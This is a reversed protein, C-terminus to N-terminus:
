KAPYRIMRGSSISRAIPCQVETLDAANMLGGHLSVKAQHQVLTGIRALGLFTVRGELDDSGEGPGRAKPCSKFLM